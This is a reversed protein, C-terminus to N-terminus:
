DSPILEQLYSPLQNPPHLITFFGLQAAANVNEANDDVFLTEAPHFGGLSCAKEFFEPDPKRCGLEFSFFLKDFSQFFDRCEDRLAHFHIPNSNSLLFLKFRPSLKRVLAESGPILGTLMTNWARDLDDDNARIEFELRIQNRFAASNIRGTEYDHFLPHTFLTDLENQISKAQISRLSLLHKAARSHDIAFFVAGLDLLINRIKSQNRPLDQSNMM